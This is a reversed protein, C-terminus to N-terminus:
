LMTWTDRYMYDCPCFTWEGEKTKPRHTHVLHKWAKRDRVGEENLIYMM